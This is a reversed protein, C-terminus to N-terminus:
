YLRILHVAIGLSNKESRFSNDAERSGSKPEHWLLLWLDGTMGVATIKLEREIYLFQGRREIQLILPRDDIRGRIAKRLDQTNLIRVGNISAIM